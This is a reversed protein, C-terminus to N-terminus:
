TKEKLPNLAIFNSKRNFSEIHILIKCIHSIKFLLYKHTLSRGMMITIIRFKKGLSEDHYSAWTIFVGKCGVKIYSFHPKGPYENKRKKARFCLNHTSM